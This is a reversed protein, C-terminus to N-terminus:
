RFTGGLNGPFRKFRTFHGSLLAWTLLPPPTLRPEALFGLKYHKKKPLRGKADALRGGVGLIIVYNIVVGKSNTIYDRVSTPTGGYSVAADILNRALVGATNENCSSVPASYM